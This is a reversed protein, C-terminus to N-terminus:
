PSERLVGARALAEHIRPDSRPDDFDGVEIMQIGFGPSRDESMALPVVVHPIGPISSRLAPWILGLYIREKGASVVFLRDPPRPPDDPRAPKLGAMGVDNLREIVEETTALTHAPWYYAELDRETLLPDEELPLADLAMARAEDVTLTGAVLHIAFEPPADSREEALTGGATLVCLAVAASCTSRRSFGM